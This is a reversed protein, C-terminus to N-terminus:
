LNKKVADGSNSSQESLSVNDQIYSVMHDGRLYDAEVDIGQELLHQIDFQKILTEWREILNYEKIM